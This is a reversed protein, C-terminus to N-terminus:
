FLLLHSMFTKDRESEAKFKALRYDDVPTNQGKELRKASQYIQVSNTIDKISSVFPVYKDSPTEKLVDSATQKPLKGTTPDIKKNINKLDTIAYANEYNTKTDTYAKSQNLGFFDEAKKPLVFKAVKKLFSDEKNNNVEVENGTPKSIYSKPLGFQDVERPKEIQEVPKKSVEVQKKEVQDVKLNMSKSFNSFGGSPAIEEEDKKKKTNGTNTSKIVNTNFNDFPM